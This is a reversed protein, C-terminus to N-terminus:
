FEEWEDDMHDVKASPRAASAKAQTVPRSVPASPAAMVAENVQFFGVLENLVRAQEAVAEGAAGAEEVLAANQQTMEDMQTVSQNIQTISSSQEKAAVNIDAIMKSVAQISEVIKSLTEGSENVLVTGAEVKNVSDRILDKIEKAATASRQALNRVEGAVVAFGRGQEGARAAEVAANLALLNTQFAIEDIVGIIDAIRKSAVNIETMATVAKEVVQGGTEAVAVSNNALQNAHQANESTQKVASTMEEMSSATEELSAAQEETRQSLDSNGAAIENAGTSVSGSAESIKTIVEELKEATSNTDDKLQKFLGEYQKVIRQTLDGRALASLVNAVDSIGDNTVHMLQNLGQALTKFFGEKGEDELSKSFDGKSAAVVLDAVEREIKIEQTRDAWEVVTGLRNGEDDLVPSAALDFTRGGVHVETRYSTKLGNILSRQHSPNKHFVDMNAGMLRSSDFGSLDKKIDKEASSMMDQIASNLYVINHDTDAIMTNTRSNDLAIRVRRNEDAIRKQELEKALRETIDDWEIITGARNGDVDFLPTATLKFTLSSIKIDTRYVDNMKAIMNRQHSPNKHFVDVNMGMLTPVKFRPLESQIEQERHEFMKVVAKNLYVINFENDALMVSTDCVDLADAIKKSEAAIREAEENAKQKEEAAKQERERTEKLGKQLAGIGDMLHSLEDTGSINIHNNLNGLKIQELLSNSQSLAQIVSRIVVISFALVFAYAVVLIVTLNNNKSETASIRQQLLDRLLPVTNGALKYGAAVLVTGKSFLQTATLDSRGTDIVQQVLQNFESLAARLDKIDADLAGGATESAKDAAQLAIRMKDMTIPALSLLKKIDDESVRGSAITGSVKGRLRASYEVANPLTFSLLQMKYFSDVEPDLTLNSEDSFYEIYAIIQEVLRTHANFGDLPAMAEVESSLKRWDKEIASLYDGLDLEDAYKAEIAKMQELAQNFAARAAMMKVRAEQNGKVVQFSNGRHLQGNKILEFVPKYLETGHLEKASFAINAQWESFLTYAFVGVLASFIVVVLGMKLKLSIRSLLGNM